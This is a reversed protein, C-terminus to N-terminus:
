LSFFALFHWFCGSALLPMFLNERLAELPFAARDVNQNRVKPELVSLSDM